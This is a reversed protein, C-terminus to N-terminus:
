EVVDSTQPDGAPDALRGGALVVAEPRRALALLLVAEDLAM